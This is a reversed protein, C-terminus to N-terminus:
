LHRSRHLDLSWRENLRSDERALLDLATASEDQRLWFGDSWGPEIQVSARWDRLRTRRLCWAFGGEATQKAWQLDHGDFEITSVM